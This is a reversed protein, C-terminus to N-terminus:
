ISLHSCGLFKVVRWCSVTIMASLMLNVIEGGEIDFLTFDSLGKGAYKSLGETALLLKGVKVIEATNIQLRHFERHVRIIHGFHRAGRELEHEKLDM